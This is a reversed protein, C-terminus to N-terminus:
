EPRCTMLPHAECRLPSFAKQLWNQATGGPFTSLVSSRVRRWVYTQVRGLLVEQSECIYSGCWTWHEIISEPPIKDLLRRVGSAKHWLYIRVYWFSISYILSIGHWDIAWLYMGWVIPYWPHTHKTRQPVRRRADIDLNRTKWHILFILWSSRSQLTCMINWGAICSSSSASIGLNESSVSISCKYGM